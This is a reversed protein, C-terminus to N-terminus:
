EKPLTLIGELFQRGQAKLPNYGFYDEIANLVNNAGSKELARATSKKDAEVGILAGLFAGGCYYDLAGEAVSALALMAARQEPTGQLRKIENLNLKFLDAIPGFFNRATGRRQQVVLHKTLGTYDRETFQKGDDTQRNSFWEDYHGFNGIMPKKAGRLIQIAHYFSVALDEPISEICEKSTLIRKQKAKSIKGM